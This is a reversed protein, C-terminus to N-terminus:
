WFHPILSRHWKKFTFLHTITNLFINKILLLNRKWVKNKRFFITVKPELNLKRISLLQNAYDVCGASNILNINLDGIIILNKTKLYANELIQIFEGIESTPTLNQRRPGQLYWTVCNNRWQYKSLDVIIWGWQYLRNTENWYM